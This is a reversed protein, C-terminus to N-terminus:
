GAISRVCSGHTTLLVGHVALCCGQLGDGGDRLAVHRVGNACQRHVADLLGIGAMRAHRHAHGVDRRHQEAAEDVDIRRRGVPRIAVAEHKRGPVARHQLIRQMVQEAVFVHRDLFQLAKALQAAAGGSMGFIAMRKADLRRGARKSLADRGGDAHRQGLAHKSGAVAGIEDIMEGVHDGAVAAQLFADAVLRDVKGTVQLEGPQDDEPVVIRDRDVSRRRQRCRHVLRCPELGGSPMDLRDVAVVGFGDSRCDFRRLLRVPRRQDGAARHDALARGIQAARFLRMARRQAIGLDGRRALVDAPRARRELHRVVDKEGPAFDGLAACRRPVGPLLPKGGRRLALGELARDGARQGVRDEFREASEALLM